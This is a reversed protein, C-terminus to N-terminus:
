ISRSAWQCGPPWVLGGAVVRVPLIRWISSSWNPDLFKGLTWTNSEVGLKVSHHTSHGKLPPAQDPTKMWDSVKRWLALPATLCAWKRERGVVFPILLKARGYREVLIHQKLPDLILFGLSGLSFSGFSQTWVFSERRFTWGLRPRPPLGARPWQQLFRPGKAM